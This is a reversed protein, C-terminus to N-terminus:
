LCLFVFFFITRLRRCLSKKEKIAKVAVAVSHRESLFFFLRHQIRFYDDAAKEQTVDKIHILQFMRPQVSGSNVVM